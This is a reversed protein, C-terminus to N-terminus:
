TLRTHAVDFNSVGPSIATALGNDSFECMLISIRDVRENTELGIECNHAICNLINGAGVVNEGFLYYGSGYGHDGGSQLVYCNSWLFTQTKASTPSPSTNIAGDAMFGYAGHDWQDGRKYITAVCNQFVNRGVLQTQYFGVLSPFNDNLFYSNSVVFVGDYNGWGVHAYNM